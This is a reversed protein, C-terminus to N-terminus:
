PRYEMYREPHALAAFGFREYLGHADDTVLSWRRLGALEPAALAAEVLWKGLGRGRHEELVYVDALYAYTARDTVARAFAVTRGERLIGFCMSHDLSRCVTELTIGPAWYSRTLFTHIAVDDLRARETVLEYGDRDSM